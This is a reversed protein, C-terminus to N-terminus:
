ELAKVKNNSLQGSKKKMITWVEEIQTLDASSGQWDFVNVGRETIYRLTSKSWHWQAKDNM